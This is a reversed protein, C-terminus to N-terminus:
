WGVGSTKRPGSICHPFLSFKRSPKVESSTRMWNEALYLKLSENPPLHSQGGPLAPWLERKGDDAACALEGAGLRTGCTHVDPGELLGGPQAEGCTDGIRPRPVRPAITANEYQYVHFVTIGRECTM